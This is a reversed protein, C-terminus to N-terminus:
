DYVPFIFNLFRCECITINKEYYALHNNVM